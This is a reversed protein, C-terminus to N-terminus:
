HLMKIGGGGQRSGRTQVHLSQRASVFFLDLYSWGSLNNVDLFFLVADILDSVVMWTQGNASRQVTDKVM